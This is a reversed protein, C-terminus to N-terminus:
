LVRASAIHFLSWGQEVVGVAITAIVIMTCECSTPPLRNPDNM